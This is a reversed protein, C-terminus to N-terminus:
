AAISPRVREAIRFALPYDSPHSRWAAAMLRVGDQFPVARHFGVSVAFWAPVKSGDLAGVLARM